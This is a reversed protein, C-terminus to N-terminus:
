RAGARREVPRIGLRAWRAEDEAMLRARREQWAARQRQYEPSAERAAQEAARREDAERTLEPNAEVCFSCLGDDRDATEEECHSCLAIPDPDYEREIGDACEYIGNGLHRAM